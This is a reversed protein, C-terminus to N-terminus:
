VDDPKGEKFGIVLEAGTMEKVKDRLELINDLERQVQRIVDGPDTGAMYAAAVSLTLLADSIDKPSVGRKLASAAVRELDSKLDDM